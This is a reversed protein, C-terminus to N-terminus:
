SNQLNRLRSGLCVPHTILSDPHEPEHRLTQPNGEAPLPSATLKGPPRPGPETTSHHPPRPIPLKCLRALVALGDPTGPWHRQVTEPGARRIMSRLLITVVIVDDAPGIVPIFEPILDLPSVLWALAIWARARIAWPLTRDAALRRLLRLVDPLLRLGEALPVGKSRLVILGIVLLWATLLTAAVSILIDTLM